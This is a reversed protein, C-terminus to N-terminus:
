RDFGSQILIWRIVPRRSRFVSWQIMPDNSWQYLANRQSFSWFNIMKGLPAWNWVHLYRMYQGSLNNPIAGCIRHYVRFVSLKTINFRDAVSRRCEPNEVCSFQKIREFYNESRVHSQMERELLFFLFEEDESSRAEQLISHDSLEEVWSVVAARYAVAM